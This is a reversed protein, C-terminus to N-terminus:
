EDIRTATGIIDPIQLDDLDPAQISEPEGWDLTIQQAEQVQMQISALKAYKYSILTKAAELRINQKRSKMLRGVCEVPCGYKEVTKRYVQDYELNRKNVSGLKRGM